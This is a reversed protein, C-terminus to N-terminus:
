HDQSRLYKVRAVILELTYDLFRTFLLILAISLLFSMSIFRSWHEYVEGTRVFQLFARFVLSGGAVLLAAVAVWYLRSSFFAATLGRTERREPRDRLTIDVIRRSLYGACFLLCASVGGLGAVVFRYIMWELVKRNLLYYEIPMLMLGVSVAACLAGLIGLPRSPCYLFTTELIVKLFRLGDRFVRLKSRGQREHYPTDIEVIKLDDSLIARASMAPTFHLGDPLPFLLPLSSRRVVRMGSAVDRVRKSSFITLIWSFLLNGIWRVWPMRSKPNLRCALAVDAQKEELAQCLPAFFRPDCTGDGDLFGLLEADSRRWAEKIAAGYGRNQEFVILNIRDAYGGALEVTRDTSGDSVVTVEVDTVPSNALLHGRAALSREIVEGISEEENLAPIALLLRMPQGETDRCQRSDM